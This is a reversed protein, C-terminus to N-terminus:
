VFRAISSAPRALLHNSIRKQRSLYVEAAMCIDHLGCRFNLSIPTFCHKNILFCPRVMTLIGYRGMGNMSSGALVLANVM